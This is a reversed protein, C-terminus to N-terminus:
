GALIIRFSGQGRFLIKTYEYSQIIGLIHFLDLCFVRRGRDARVALRRQHM